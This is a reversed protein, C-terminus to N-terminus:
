GNAAGMMVAVIIIIIIIIIGNATRRTAYHHSHEDSSDVRDSLTQESRAAYLVNHFHSTILSCPIYM